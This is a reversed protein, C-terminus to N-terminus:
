QIRCDAAADLEDERMAALEERTLTRPPQKLPPLGTSMTQRIRSASAAADRATAASREAAIRETLLQLVREEESLSPQSACASV